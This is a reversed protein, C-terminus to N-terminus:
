CHILILAYVYLYLPSGHWTVGVVVIYAVQISAVGMWRLLLLLVFSTMLLCIRALM